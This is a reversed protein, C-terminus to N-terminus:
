NCTLWGYSRGKEKMATSLKRIQVVRDLMAQDCVLTQSRGLYTVEEAPFM